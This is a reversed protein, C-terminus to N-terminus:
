ESIGGQFNLYNISSQVRLATRFDKRHITAIGAELDESRLTRGRLAKLCLTRNGWHSTYM